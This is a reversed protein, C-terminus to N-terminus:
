EIEFIKIQNNVWDTVYLNGKDDLALGLPYNIRNDVANNRVNDIVAIEDTKGGCYRIVRNTQCDLIYIQGFHDVFVANSPFNTSEFHLQLIGNPVFLDTGQKAGKEWQLVRRYNTDCIYLTHDDDVFLSTPCNLQHGIGNGGAVIETSNYDYPYRFYLTLPCQKWLRVENKEYDSVYLSGDQHMALGCCKIDSILVAGFSNTKQYWRIVRKNGQDAIVLSDDQRDVIVAVPQNLQNNGNGRGNGGAVIIGETANPKWQVIRDNGSDAVYITQDREDFYFSRPSSLQDM